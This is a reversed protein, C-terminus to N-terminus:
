FQMEHFGAVEIKNEQVVAEVEARGGCPFDCAL